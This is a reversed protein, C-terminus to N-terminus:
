TEFIEVISPINFTYGENCTNLAKRPNGMDGDVVEFMTTKTVGEAHTLLLIEGRTTMIKLNFGALFKTTTIINEILKAQELFSWQVINALSGPDVLVRKIKFDLVSLSKVSAHNHPLLLGDVDEETFIIDDESVERIRKGHTVSINTKKAASFIVGNVEDGGLIMNITMRHSGIAPKSPEAVDRNRGYNSKARDSLFERLHGNKLLMTVEEHLHRFDGATLGM